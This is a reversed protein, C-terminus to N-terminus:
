LVIDLFTDEMGLTESIANPVTADDGVHTLMVDRIILFLIIIDREGIGHVIVNPTLQGNKVNWKHRRSHNVGDEVQALM